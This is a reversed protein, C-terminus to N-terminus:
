SGASLKEFKLSQTKGTTFGKWTTDTTTGSETTLNLYADMSTDAKLHKGLWATIFHQSINNMRLNDWVPDIYHNTVHMNITSDFKYAELPPSMPAGVNHGAGVFTLLSRDVSTTNTWTQRVGDEYGVTGDVSGAIFLVPVQIDALASNSIWGHKTGAPAFPVATKIRSDAMATHTDSGSLHQAALPYATATAANIGAGLTVLTGYGGMSYGIIATNNTNALGYLFSSSDQALSAIKNLVFKQDLPRNVIASYLGNAGLTNYTSDTHDIAVVVYGKSAINEAIPTMLHRNGPHGHSIIVLPYAGGSTNPAANQMAKGQLTILEGNRMMATIQNTGTATSAAPYWVEVKLPRDYTTLPNPLPSTTGITAVDVQGPNTFELTRVGVKQDGYAALEPADGRILDVRNATIGSSTDPQTAAVADDGGCGTLLTTTTLAGLALVAAAIIRKKSLVFENM